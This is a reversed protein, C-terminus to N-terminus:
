KTWIFVLDLNSAASIVAWVPEPLGVGKVLGVKRKTAVNSTWGTKEVM